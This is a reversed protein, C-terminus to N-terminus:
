ARKAQMREWTVFGITYLLCMLGLAALTYTRGVINLLGLAFCLVLFVILLGQWLSGRESDSSWANKFESFLETIKKRLMFCVVLSLAFPLWVDFLIFTGIGNSLAHAIFAPVISGYKQASYTWLVSAFLIEVLFLFLMPDASIYRTHSLGFVMGTLVVGAMPGYSEVLRMRMYGRTMIEETLPPIFVSTGLLMIWFASDIHTDSYTWWADLGHGFPFFAHAAFLLSLLLGSIVGLMIGANFLESFQYNNLTLGAKVPTVGTRFYLLGFGLAGVSGLRLFILLGEAFAQASNSATGALIAESVFLPFMAEGVINGLALVLLVEAMAALRSVMM